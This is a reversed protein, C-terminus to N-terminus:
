GIAMDVPGHFREVRFTGRFAGVECAFSKFLDSQWYNELVEKGELEYAILYRMWGDETPDALVVRQVKLFGPFTMVKAIHGGELWDLYPRGKEPAVEALIYYFYSAM